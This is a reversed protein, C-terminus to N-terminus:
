SCQMPLTSQIPHEITTDKVTCIYVASFGTNGEIYVTVTPKEKNPKVLKKHM